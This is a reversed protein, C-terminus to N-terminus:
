QKKKTFGLKESIREACNKVLKSLEEIRDQTISFKPGSISVAAVVSGTYDFIPAAICRIGEENEENDFAFGRRRVEELEERLREPDVLTNPTFAPLGRKIIKEKEEESLHSLIAKGVASAHMPITKGIQSHMRITKKSDIKDIYVAEKKNYIVLHVTEGTIDALEKISDKAQDRIDMHDLFRGALQLIKIGLKYKDTKEDKEVYNLIELDRLFRHVTSKHLSTIRSIETVGLGEKEESLIELIKFARELSQVRLEKDM